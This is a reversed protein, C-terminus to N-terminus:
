IRLALYGEPGFTGGHALDDFGLSFGLDVFRRPTWQIGARLFTTLGGYNADGKTTSFDDMNVGIRGIIALDPSSQYDGYFSFRLAGRPQATNNDDRAKGLANSLEQYFTPAFKVIKISLLDDLGGIAFKNGFTFKVPAGVELGVAIPALYMPVGLRVGIWDQVLYTVDLGVTKGPHFALKGEPITPEHYIGGVVYSLGLQVQRTIGYRARLLGTGVYPSFQAHLDLSVESMNQPLTIPRLAQEIPYGAAKKPPAVPPAQVTEVGVAKPADPNEDTGNMDSPPVDETMQVASGAGAGTDGPAPTAAPAPTAPAPAAPAAPAPADKAPAVPGKKGKAPAKKPQAAVFTGSAAVLCVTLVSALRRVSMARLM